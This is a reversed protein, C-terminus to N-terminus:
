SISDNDSPPGPPGDPEEAEKIKGDTRHRIRRLRSLLSNEGRFLNPFDITKSPVYEVNGDEDIESVRLYAMTTVPLKKRRLLFDTLEGLLYYLSAFLPVGLLMGLFGMIHNFLLLAFLVWFAPLGTSDGLIKPGIVNGDVQQLVIIFIIFILCKSPDTLLLLLASPVAGFFPGFVPIINTVGIIVSILPVYPIRLVTLCIGCLIGIILSDLLKGSVFGSFISNIARLHVLIQNCTKRKRCFAFLFKKGQAVFQDRGSLVYVMVIIGIIFQLVGQAADRIRGALDMIRSFPDDQIWGRIFKVARQFLDDVIDTSLGHSSLYDSLQVSFRDLMVPLNQILPPISVVLQPIIFYAFLVLIMLLLLLATLTSLTRALQRKMKHFLFFQESFRAVPYLLYAMVCGMLIARLATLVNGFAATISNFHLLGQLVLFVVVIGALVLFGYSIIKKIPPKM